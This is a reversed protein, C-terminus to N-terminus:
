GNVYVIRSYFEFASSSTMDMRGTVTVVDWEADYHIVQMPYTVRNGMTDVYSKQRAWYYGSKRM